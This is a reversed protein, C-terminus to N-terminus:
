FYSFWKIELFFQTDTYDVVVPDRSKRVKRDFIKVFVFLSNKASWIPGLDFPDTHEKKPKVVAGVM